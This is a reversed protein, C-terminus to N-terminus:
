SKVATVLIRHDHVTFGGEARIRRHLARLETDFREVTFGPVQWPVALLHFVVAGIDLYTVPAAIQEVRTVHFGALALSDALRRATPGDSPAPLRLVRGRVSTTTDL